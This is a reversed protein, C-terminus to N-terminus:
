FSSGPRALFELEEPTSLRGLIANRHPFRGFREIVRLHRLAYEYVDAYGQLDRFGEMLAVSRRQDELAESHEFPLYLFLRREPAMGADFGRDLANRAAALARGDGAFAEPSGRYMNRPFQDLLLILALCGQAEGQWGDLAGARAQRHDDAFRDRIERDFGPDGAFWSRRRVGPEAGFWFDLIAPVRDSEAV